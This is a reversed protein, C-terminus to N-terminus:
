YVPNFLFKQRKITTKLNGMIINITKREFSIIKFIEQAFPGTSFKYMQNLKLQYFNESLYGSKNEIKKCVRVFKEIDNQSQIFGNLFYKLGRCFKLKEIERFDIFKKHFCFLYDGLLNFEKKILKNKNYKQIVLQPIYIEYDKGLKNSLDKKLFELKKKNFKIITWM